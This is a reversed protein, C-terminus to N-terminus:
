AETEGVTFFPSFIIGGRDVEFLQQPMLHFFHLEHLCEKFIAYFCLIKKFFFKYNYTSKRPCWFHNLAESFENLTELAIKRLNVFQKRPM